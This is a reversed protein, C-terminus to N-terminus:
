PAAGVPQPAPSAAPSTSGSGATDGSGAARRAAPAGTGGTGPNRTGSGTGANGTAGTGAGGSRTPPTPPTVRQEPTTPTPLTPIQDQRNTFRGAVMQAASQGAPAAAGGTAAAAAPANEAPNPTNARIREIKETTAMRNLPMYDTSFTLDVEGTLDANVNLEANSDAKTSRVYTVSTRASASWWGFGVQGQVGVHTDLMDAREEHASDTADIHFGMTARIRGHNIVIRQLGMMVMTSLMQLRSQALKRRAAPILVEELTVDDIVDVDDPLNLADRIGTPPEDADTPVARPGDSGSQMRLHRPYRQALWQEAEANSINETEFQDVTKAVADLMETFAGMQTQTADLIANFVGKILDAVFSPFSIARLTSRTVAGVRDTARPQFDAQTRALPAGRTTGHRASPRDDEPRLTEVTRVLPRQGIADSLKWDMLALAAVYKAVKGIGGALAERQGSDMDAAAPAAAVLAAVQADVLRGLEPTAEPGLSPAPGSYPSPLAPPIATM